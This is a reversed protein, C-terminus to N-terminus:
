FYSQFDEPKKVWTINRPLCLTDSAIYSLEDSTLDDVILKQASALLLYDFPVVYQSTVLFLVISLM